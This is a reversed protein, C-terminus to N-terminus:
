ISTVNAQGVKFYLIASGISMIAGQCTFGRDFFHIFPHMECQGPALSPACPCARAIPVFALVHTWLASQGEGAPQSKSQGGGERHRGM